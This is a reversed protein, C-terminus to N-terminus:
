DLEELEAIDDIVSKLWEWFTNYSAIVDYGSSTWGNIVVVCEVAQSKVSFCAIDDNDYRRAFAILCGEYSGQPWKDTVNFVDQKSLYYWPYLPSSYYAIIGKKLLWQYGPPLTFDFDPDLSPTNLSSSM